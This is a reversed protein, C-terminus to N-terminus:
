LQRNLEDLALKYEEDDPTRYHWLLNMEMFSVGKGKVSNSIIVNPKGREFPLKNFTDMIEAHNHGDIDVASWGFSRFKEALSGLNIVDKTEGLAQMKNYDVIAVLNDFGHHGAFLAAEWVSGENVEGDSMLVYVNSSRNDMKAALAMGAAVSLGHGLSGSSVEIGMELMRRPHHELSGDNVSFRNLTEKSIFGLKELIIYLSLCAHGKSLIFKDRNDDFKSKPSINIQEFYLATLIEIISFNSAIHTSKTKYSYEIVDRRIQNALAKFEKYEMM